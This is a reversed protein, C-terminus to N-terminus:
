GYEKSIPREHNVIVEINRKRAEKICHDTGSSKGDSRFAEVRDPNYKDLMLENRDLGALNVHRYGTNVIRGNDWDAPEPIVKAGVIDAWKGCMRDAGRPSDGHVITLKEGKASAEAELEEMREKIQAENTWTRSGTVVIVM